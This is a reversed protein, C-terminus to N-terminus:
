DYDGRAIVANPTSTANKFAKPMWSILPIAGLEWAGGAGGPAYSDGHMLWEYIDEETFAYDWVRFFHAIAPPEGIWATSVNIPAGETGTGPSYRGWLAGYCQGVFVYVISLRIVSM